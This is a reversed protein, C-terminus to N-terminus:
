RGGPTVVLGLPGAKAFFTDIKKMGGAPLKHSKPTGKCNEIHVKFNGTNYPEKLKLEKGCKFHCVTKPDLITSNPDLELIKNRFKTDRESSQVFDGVSFRRNQIRSWLTSKAIPLHRQFSM